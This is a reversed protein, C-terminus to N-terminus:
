YICTYASLEAHVVKLVTSKHVVQFSCSEVLLLLLIITSGKIKANLDM